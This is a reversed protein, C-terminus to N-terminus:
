LSDYFQGVMKEMEEFYFDICGVESVFLIDGIFVGIFQGDQENDIVLVCISDKIYGFMVIVEFIWKGIEFKDGNGVKCVYEIFEDVYKGYYIDVGIQNVLVVVGFIFDENCYIEIIIIIWCEYKGVFIFYYQMDLQFDIVCVEGDSGILYFFYVIGLIKVFEVFM